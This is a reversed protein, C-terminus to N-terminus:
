ASANETKAITIGFLENKILEREQKSFVEVTSQEHARSLHSRSDLGLMDMLVRAKREQDPNM